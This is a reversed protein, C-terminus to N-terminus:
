FSLFIFDGRSLNLTSLRTEAFYLIKSIFHYIQFSKRDVRVSM